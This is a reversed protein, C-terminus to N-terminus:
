GMRRRMEGQSQNLVVLWTASITSMSSSLSTVEQDRTKLIREGYLCSASKAFVFRPGDPRSIFRSSELADDVLVLCNRVVEIPQATGRQM